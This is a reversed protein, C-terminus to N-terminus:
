DRFRSSLIILLRLVEIYLWILSVLLGLSLNWEYRKPIQDEVAMKCNDFDILLNFSALIVMGLVLLILFETPMSQMINLGFLSLVFSFLYFLLISFMLTYVIKRFRFGVKFLGTSYAALLFVFIAFTITVANFVIGEYAMNAVLSISGLLIGEFIAYLITFFATARTFNALLVCAFGGIMSVILLPGLYNLLSEFNIWIYGSIMFIMALLIGSKTAIGSFTAVDGVEYAYGRGHAKEIKNLVPNKSHFNM